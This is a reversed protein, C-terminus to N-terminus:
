ISNWTTIVGSCYIKLKKNLAFILLRSTTTRLNKIISTLDARYTLLASCVLITFLLAM